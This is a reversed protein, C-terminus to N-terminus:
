RPWAENTALGCALCQRRPLWVFPAIVSEGCRPCVVLQAWLGFVVIGVLSIVAPLVSEHALSTFLAVVFPLQVSFRVVFTARASRM